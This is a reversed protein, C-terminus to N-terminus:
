AAALGSWISHERAATTQRSTAPIQHSKGRGPKNNIEVRQLTRLGDM